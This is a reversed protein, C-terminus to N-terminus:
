KYPEFPVSENKMKKTRDQYVSLWQANSLGLLDALETYNTHKDLFCVAIKIANLVDQIEKKRQGKSEHHIIFARIGDVIINTGGGAGKSVKGQSEKGEQIEKEQRIRNVM